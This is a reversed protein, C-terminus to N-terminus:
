PKNRFGKKRALQLIQQGRQGSWIERRRDGDSLEHYVGLWHNLSQGDKRAIFVDILELLLKDLNM